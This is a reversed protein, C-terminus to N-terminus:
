NDHDVPRIIRTGERRGTQRETQKYTQRERSDIRKKEKKREKQCLSVSMPCELVRPMSANLMEYTIYVQFSLICQTVFPLQM